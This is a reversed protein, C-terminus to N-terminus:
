RNKFVKLYAKKAFKDAVKMSTDVIDENDIIVVMLMELEIISDYKCIKISNKDKYSQEILLYLGIMFISSDSTDIEDFLNNVDKVIAVHLYRYKAVSLLIADIIVEASAIFEADPSDEEKALKWQEKMYSFAPLLLLLEYKIQKEKLMYKLQKKSSKLRIKKDKKIVPNKSIIYNNKFLAHNGLVSSLATRRQLLTNKGKNVDLLATM